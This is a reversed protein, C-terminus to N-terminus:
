ATPKEDKKPQEVTTTINEKNTQEVTTAINDKNPQEVKTAVNDKNPQEATTAVNDKKPQEATTAVNDKKTEKKKEAVKKKEKKERVTVILSDDLKKKDEDTVQMKHTLDKFYDLRKKIKDGQMTGKTVYDSYEKNSTYTTCFKFLAYAFNKKNGNAIIIKDMSWLAFPLSTKKLKTYGEIEVSPLYEGLSKIANELRNFLKDLQDKSMESLKNGFTSYLFKTSCNQPVEGTNLTMLYLTQLIIDRDMDRICNIATIATKDWFLVNKTEEKNKLEQGDYSYHKVLVPIEIECVTKLRKRLDVDLYTAEKQSANLPKGGNTRLFLERIQDQTYDSCDTLAIPYLDIHHRLNKIFEKDEEIEKATADISECDAILKYINYKIAKDNKKKKDGLADYFERLTTIRQIGDLIYNVNVTNEGVDEKETVVTFDGIPIGKLLSDMLLTKDKKSWQGVKRQMIHSCYYKTVEVVGEALAAEEKDTAIDFIEHVSAARTNPRKLKIDALNAM